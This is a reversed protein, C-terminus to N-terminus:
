RLLALQRARVVIAGRLRARMALRASRRVPVHDMAGVRSRIISFGRRQLQSVAGPSRGLIEAVEAVTFDFVFRLVIVQRQVIPLREILRLLDTDGIEELTQGAITQGRRELRRNLEVPEALELRRQREIHNITYNRVIRFLWVRFPVDRLV